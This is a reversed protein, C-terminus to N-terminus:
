GGHTFGPQSTCWLRRCGNRLSLAAGHHRPATHLGPRMSHALVVHDRVTLDGPAQRLARGGATPMCNLILRCASPRWARPRGEVARLPPTAARTRDENSACCVAALLVRARVVYCLTARSLPLAARQFLM